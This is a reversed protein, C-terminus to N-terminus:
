KTDICDKNFFDEVMRQKGNDTLPRQKKILQKHLRSLAESDSIITTTHPDSQGCGSIISIHLDRIFIPKLIFQFTNTLIETSPALRFSQTCIFSVKDISSYRIWKKSDIVRPPVLKFDVNPTKIISTSSFVDSAIGPGHNTIEIGIHLHITNEQIQSNHFYIRHSIHPQPRRGFMGSLVSHPTPHFDSGARIYYRNGTVSQHPARNSKPILTVVFGNGKDDTIIPHHEVLSHPPVTCGSVNGELWSKFRAVNEIEFKAKAVDAGDFDKKCEVGWVIVGGESNGFGSIAKAFNKRDNNSLKSGSGNNFSRKFDLYLEESERNSIFEDIAEEGKEKINQFIEEARGM